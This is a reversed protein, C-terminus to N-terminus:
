WRGPVQSCEGTHADSHRVGNVIVELRARLELV